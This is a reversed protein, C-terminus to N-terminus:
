RQPYVPRWRPSLRSDDVSLNEMFVNQSLITPTIPINRTDEYSIQKGGRILTTVPSVPPTMTASISPVSTNSSSAITSRQTCPTGVCFDGGNGNTDNQPEVIWNYHLPSVGVPYANAEDPFRYQAYWNAGSYWM